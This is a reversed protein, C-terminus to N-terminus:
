ALVRTLPVTKGDATVISEFHVHSAADIRTGDVVFTEAKWPNFHVTPADAPASCTCARPTGEAWAVVKRVGRARIRAMGAASVVFRVDRLCVAEPNSVVRWGDPTKQSVSYGGKHLNWHVRTM